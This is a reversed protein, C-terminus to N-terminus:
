DWIDSALLQTLPSPNVTVLVVIYDKDPWLPQPYAAICTRPRYWPDDLNDSRKYAVWGQKENLSGYNLLQSEPMVLKCLADEDRVREWGQMEFWEDFYSVISTWNEFDICRSWCHFPSEPAVSRWVFFKGDGWYHITSETHKFWVKKVSATDPIIYQPREIFYYTSIFTVLCIMPIVLFNGFSKLWKPIRYQSRDNRGFAM